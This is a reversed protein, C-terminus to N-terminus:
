DTPIFFYKLSRVPLVLMEVRAWCRFPLVVADGFSVCPAALLTWAPATVNNVFADCWVSTTPQVGWGSRDQVAALLNSQM